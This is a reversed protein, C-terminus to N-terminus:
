DAPALTFPHAVSQLHRALRHDDRAPALADPAGDGDAEELGACPDDHAAPVLRRIQRAAGSLSAAKQAASTRSTVSMSRTTAKVRARNPRSSTSTFLAPPEGSAAAAVAEGRKEAATIASLRVAGSLKECRALATMCPCSSPPTITLMALTLPVRGDGPM